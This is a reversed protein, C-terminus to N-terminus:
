FYLYPIINQDTWDIFIGFREALNNLIEIIQSSFTIDTM